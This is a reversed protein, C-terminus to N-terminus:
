SNMSCIRFSSEKGVEKSECPSTHCTRPHRFMGLPGCTHTSRIILMLFIVAFLAGLYIIFPMFRFVVQM